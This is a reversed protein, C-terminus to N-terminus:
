GMVSRCRILGWADGGVLWGLLIAFAPPDPHNTDGSRYQARVYPYPFILGNVM